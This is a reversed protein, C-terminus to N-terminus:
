LEFYNLDNLCALIVELESNNLSFNKIKSKKSLENYNEISIQYGEGNVWETLDCTYHQYKGNGLPNKQSFCVAKLNGEKKPNFKEDEQLYKLIWKKIISKM